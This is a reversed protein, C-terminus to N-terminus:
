YIRLQERAFLEFYRQLQRAYFGATVYHYIPPWGAAIREPEAAVAARFDAIPERGDRVTHCCASFAREAPDRLIAIMRADPIHRHINRPAQEAYLYIPSAEGIAGENTVDDFLARYAALDHMAPHSWDSQPG